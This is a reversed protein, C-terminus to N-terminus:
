TRSDRVPASAYLGERRIIELVADPVLYRASLGARVRSRIERGSISVLPAEFFRVREGLGEIELGELDSEAGPRHMVGIAACLRVLRDPERWRPLEALADSGMLYVFEGDPEAARLAQLTDAAFHPAPRDLDVRSLRFRPDDAIAAEVMRTRAGVPSIEDEPKLPSRPTLVWRVEGLRLGDAAYTALILHGLHPPDFTGGFVGIVGAM